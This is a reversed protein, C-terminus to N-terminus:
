KQEKARIENFIRSRVDEYVADDLLINPKTHNAHDLIGAGYRKIILENLQHEDKIGEGLPIYDSKTEFNFSATLIKAARELDPIGHFSNIDDLGGKVIWGEGGANNKRYGFFPFFEVDSRKDSTHNLTRYLPVPVGKINAFVFLRGSSMKGWTYGELDTLVGLEVLKGIRENPPLIKVEQALLETQNLHLSAAPWTENERM